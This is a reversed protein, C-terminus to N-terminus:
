VCVRYYKATSATISKRTLECVQGPRLSMALSQPDFRSIEPLNKTEKLHYVKMLEALGDDSLISIEPVLVHNLLNFQLRAISLIVVFIGNHDYLYKLKNLITENPDENSIIILTDNKKDTLVNDIVFLDEVIDDLNEKRFQKVNLLYKIYSKAGDSEREVLIDLQNNKYMTDIENISFETYNDVSYGQHKLLELITNRAKYLHIVVNSALSSM